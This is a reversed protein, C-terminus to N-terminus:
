HRPRSSAIDMALAVFMMVISFGALGWALFFLFSIFRLVKENKIKLLESAGNILMFATAILIPLSPVLPDM